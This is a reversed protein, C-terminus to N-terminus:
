VTFHAIGSQNIHDRKMRPVLISMVRFNTVMGAQTDWQITTPQMGVVLDVVEPAMQILLAEGSGGSSLEESLRIETLGNLEMLRSRITKDSNAKFDEDLKNDFPVPIYLIFPGFMHDSILAAKMAIVDALIEEGTTGVLVWDGTLSGTNRNTATTYGELQKGAFKLANGNFLISENLEAVKISSIRAQTTDLAQGLKRSAELVRININFEKHVIPIPLAELGYVIRDNEGFTVGSMDIAAPDMDSVTEWELIMTGLGNTLEFTLGATLLDAIGRLRKRAVDIVVEDFQKWEDKRLVDLTRLSNINMGSQLLRIAINGSAVPGGPQLTVVDTINDPM